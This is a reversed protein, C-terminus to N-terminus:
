YFLAKNILLLRAILLGLKPNPIPPDQAHTESASTAQACGVFMQQVRRRM